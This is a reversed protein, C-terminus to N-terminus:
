IRKAATSVALPAPFKKISNAEQAAPHARPPDALIETIEEAKYPVTEPDETAM